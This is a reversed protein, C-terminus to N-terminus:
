IELGSSMSWNSESSRTQNYRCSSFRHIILWRVLGDINQHDVVAGGIQQRELRDQLRRVSIQHARRRALIRQAIKEIVIYGYHQQVDVHGADVSQLRRLQNAAAFFRAVDRDDKQSRVGGADAMEAASVGQARNIVDHLRDISIDQSRLHRNEDFEKLLILLNLLLCLQELFLVAFELIRIQGPEVHQDVQPM